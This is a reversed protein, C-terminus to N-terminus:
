QHIIKGNELKVFPMSKALIYFCAV